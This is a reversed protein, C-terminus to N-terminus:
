NSIYLLAHSKALVDNSLTAINTSLTVVSNESICLVRNLFALRNNSSIDSLSM